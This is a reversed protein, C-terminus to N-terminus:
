SMIPWDKLKHFVRGSNLSSVETPGLSSKSKQQEKKTIAQYNTKVGLAALTKLFLRRTIDSSM